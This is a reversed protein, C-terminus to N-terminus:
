VCLWGRLAGICRAWWTQREAAAEIAQRLQILEATEVESMQSDDSMRWTLTHLSEMHPTAFQRELPRPLLPQREIVAVRFRHQTPDPLRQPVSSIRM